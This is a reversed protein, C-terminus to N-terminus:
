NVWGDVYYGYYKGGTKSNEVLGYKIYAIKGGKLEATVAQGDLMQQKQADTFTCTSYTDRMDAITEAKKPGQKIASLTWGWKPDNVIELQPSWSGKATQVTVQVPKGAAVDALESDTLRYTMFVPRLRITEGKFVVEVKDDPKKVAGLSAIGWGYTPHNQIQYQCPYKGFKGDTEIIVVDGTSLDMLEDDTAERGGALSTNLEIMNGKFVVQRKTPTKKQLKSLSKYEAKMDKDDSSEIVEMYRKAMAKNKVMLPMDHKMVATMSDVVSRVTRKGEGVEKMAKELNATVTPSAIHTGKLLVANLKGLVTLKLRGKTETVLRREQTDGTLESITSLRTAGTGVGLKVLQKELWKITPKAPRPNSGEYIFPKAISGLATVNNEKDKDKDDDDKDDYIAKYGLSKPVSVMAKFGPVGVLEAVVQEYTYDEAMMALYNRALLEYIASGLGATSGGKEFQSLSDLASPVRLGPRNAGHAGGEKIHTKREATHTLLSPDVGVVNAISNVLPLMQKYQESTIFADETRPYSVIQSEYMAQYVKLIDSSRYGKPALASGIGGITLLAPPAKHKMARSVENTNAQAFQALEAEAQAKDLHRFMDGDSYPRKYVNGQDDKYRVEYYPVKKYTRIREEQEFLLRNIVSKLRGNRLVAKIGLSRIVVTAVRTVQMSLWDWRSRAEAKLYDGNKDLDPIDKIDRFAKQLSAPSEDTLYMRKIPKRWGIHKIIEGAILEGEGSPDVDTAIVFVDCTSAEDKVAKVISRKSPVVHRKFAVDEPNWPLKDLDWSKYDEAKEPAVQKEPAEFEMTHGAAAGLLYDQGEFTGSRGGFAKEMSQRASPKEALIYYRM